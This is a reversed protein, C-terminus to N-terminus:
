VRRASSEVLSIPSARKPVRVMPTSCSDSLVAHTVPRATMTMDDITPADTSSDKRREYWSVAL